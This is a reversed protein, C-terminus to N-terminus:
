HGSFSNESSEFQDNLVTSTSDSVEYWKPGKDFMKMLDENVEQTQNSVANPHFKEANISLDSKLPM